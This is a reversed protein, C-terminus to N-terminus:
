SGILVAKATGKPHTGHISRIFIRQLWFFPKIMLRFPYHIM